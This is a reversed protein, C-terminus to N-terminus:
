ASIDRLMGHMSVGWKYPIFLVYTECEIKVGDKTLGTFEYQQVSFNGRIGERYKEKIFRRSDPAVLKIPNFGHHCAEEPTVGFLEAFRDNVFEFKRDFIVYIAETRHNLQPFYRGIREGFEQSAHSAERELAELESVRVQLTVLEDILQKKTKSAAKM